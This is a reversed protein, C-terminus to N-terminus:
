GFGPIREDLALRRGTWTIRHISARLGSGVLRNYVWVFYLPDTFVPRSLAMAHEVLHPNLSVQAILCTFCSRSLRM